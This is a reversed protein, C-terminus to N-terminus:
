RAALQRYVDGLATGVKDLPHQECYQETAALLAQPATAADLTAGVNPNGQRTEVTRFNAGSLFGTAYNMYHFGWVDRNTLLNNTMTGCDHLAFGWVMGTDYNFPSPQTARQGTIKAPVTSDSARRADPGCGVLVLVLVAAIWRTASM